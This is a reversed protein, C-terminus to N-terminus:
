VKHMFRHVRHNHSIGHSALPKNDGASAASARVTSPLGIGPSRSATWDSVPAYM